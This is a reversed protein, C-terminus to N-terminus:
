FELAINEATEFDIEQNITVVKGQLFLKKVIASPQIKMKDALEQITLAEPLTILTVKEEKKEQKATPRALPAKVEVKRKGGRGVGDELRSDYEKKKHTDKGKGKGRTPKGADISPAPSSSTKKAFKPKKDDEDKDKNYGMGDNRGFPKRTNNKNAGNRNDFSNNGNGNHRPNPGRNGRPDRNDRKDNGNGSFPKREHKDGDNRTPKNQKTGEIPKRSTLHSSSPRNVHQQEKPKNEQEKRKPPINPRMMEDLTMGRKEGLKVGVEKEKVPKTETNVSTHKEKKGLVSAFADAVNVQKKPADSSKQQNSVKDSPRNNSRNQNPRNSGGAKGKEDRRPQNNRNNKPAGGKRSESSNQPRFVHVINKKKPAEEVNKEEKKVEQKKVEEKKVEEKKVPKEESPKKPKAFAAKVVDVESEELGSQARKGTTGNKNLVDLVDKSEVGLEKALEHVIKKSM